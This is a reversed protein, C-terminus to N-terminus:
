VAIGQVSPFTTKLWSTCCVRRKLFCLFWRETLLQLRLHLSYLIYLTQKLNATHIYGGIVPVKWKWWIKTKKFITCEGNIYVDINRMIHQISKANRIGTLLHLIWQVFEAIRSNPWSKSFLNKILSSGDRKLCCVIRQLFCYTLMGAFYANGKSLHQLM